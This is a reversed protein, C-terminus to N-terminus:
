MYLRSIKWGAYIGAIAGLGGLIISSFSFVDGGWMVPLYSGVTSGIMMMVWVIAKSNM